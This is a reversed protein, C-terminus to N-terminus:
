GIRLHGRADVRLTARPPLYTTAGDELVLLPGRARFGPALEERRLLWAPRTARGDDLRIRLRAPRRRGAAPAEAARRPPLTRAELNLSVVEIAAGPRAYGYRAAHAAHFDRDLAGGWPVELEYSQGRYRLDASAFLRPVAGWRRRAERRMEALVRELAPRAGPTLERLVSRTLPHLEEAGLLGWASLVGARRPIVTQYVALAAGVQAAFLGGAGGFAVLSADRPDHGRAVSVLRLAHEISATAVAMVGRAAATARAAPSGALRLRQGLEALARWAAEAELAIAGGAFDETRLRGLVLAADTVTAGGGRGYCAPGPDAGASEPGVLLAGGRDVRALSGGGAGVTEMELLPVLLTQGGVESGKVTRPREHVLAVDTSTGGVDLSLVTGGGCERGVAAAGLVGGAPGSLVALVPRAALASAAACGGNSQMVFLRRRGVPELRALYRSVVPQLFANLVTTTAREVERHERAVECSASIAVGPLARVLARVLAREHRPDAYSHLLCIAVAQPRLRAVARAVRAAERATLREVARGDARLRERAGVVRRRPVLPEDLVPALDYLRPREQRGIALLDEFGSTTVLATRAGRRTLLANTAVTFGHVVREARRGFRREAEALGALVARAPDDPTSPLKFQEVQRGRAVVFDTFTGGTDVGIWLGPM